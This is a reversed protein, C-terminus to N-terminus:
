ANDQVTWGTPIGSAGESWDEMDASKTFVGTEAVGDLWGDVCNDASIDTALCTVATLSTCGYFMYNYCYEALATAPLESAATLSTCGYFMSSYCSNALATAPLEPAATLSTCESFMNSYCFNALATAPLKPAATLSTCESFMSIYCSNALATAPLEPAATLSTCGYFMNSYCYEALATAPLEPAATLSTCGSFMYNYCSHSLVTAPLEPAATLSTCGYFMYNYCSNSLVTAPLEPAATLSTCGYFMSSYCSNSLVTAPLKLEGASVIPLEKFLEDLGNAPVDSQGPYFLRMINGGADFEDTIGLLNIGGNTNVVGTRNRFYVTEQADLTIVVDKTLQEWDNTSNLSYQVNDAFVGLLGTAFSLENGDVRSTIYFYDNAQANGASQLFAPNNLNMKMLRITKNNINVVGIQLGQPTLMPIM